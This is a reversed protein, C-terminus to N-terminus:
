KIIFENSYFRQDERFDEHLQCHICAPIAIRHFGKEISMKDLLLEFAKVQGPTVCTETKDVSPCSGYHYSKFGNGNNKELYYPYCSSFCINKIANNEIKIKPNEGLTYDTKNTIIIIRVQYNKWAWWGGALIIVVVLIGILTKKGRLLGFARTRPTETTMKNRKEFLM